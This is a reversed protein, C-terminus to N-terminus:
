RFDRRRMVSSKSCGMPDVLTDGGYSAERSARVFRADAFVVDSSRIVGQEYLSVVMIASVRRRLLDSSSPLMVVVEGYM